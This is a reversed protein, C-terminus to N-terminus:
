SINLVFTDKKYKLVNTENIIFSMEDDFDKVKMSLPNIEGSEVKEFYYPYRAKGKEIIEKREEETKAEKYMQRVQLLGAINAGIEKYDHVKYHQEFGMNASFNVKNYQHMHEAEHALSILTEVNNQEEGYRINDTITNYGSRYYAASSSKNDVSLTDNQYALDKIRPAKGLDEVMGYSFSADNKMETKLEEKSSFDGEKIKKGIVSLFDVFAKAGEKCANKMDQALSSEAYEIKNENNENDQYRTELEAVTAGGLASVVSLGAIYHGFKSM